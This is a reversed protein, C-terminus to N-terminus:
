IPIALKYESEGHQSRDVGQAEYRAPINIGVTYKLGLMILATMAGSYLTVILIGVIQWGLQAYHGFLFGTMGGIDPDAYIGALLAGLAGAIWHIGFTNLTDDYKFYPKFYIAWYPVIGVVMGIIVAGMVNVYGAAPTIGVLGSIAGDCLGTLTPKGTHFSQISIWAISAVATATNTNLFAAGADGGSTLASGANFGFWGFWLLSAGIMVFSINRPEEQQNTRPGLIITGVLAAIGSNIHVVTGGAFDLVGWDWLFGQGWVWHAVPVYVVTLWFVCFLIWSTFKIREVFGGCVLAVTIAAFVLEYMVYVFEPITPALPSRSQSSLGQLFVRKGNAAYGGDNLGFALGYGYLIWLLSVISYSVFVMAMANTRCSKKAYGGYYLALGPLTMIMVLATSTLMWATDGSNLKDPLTVNIDSVELRNVGTFLITLALCVVVVIIWKNSTRVTDSADESVSQPNHEHVEYHNGDDARNDIKPLVETLM